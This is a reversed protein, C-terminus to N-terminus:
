LQEVIEKQKLDIVYKINNINSVMKCLENNIKELNKITNVLENNLTIILQVNREIVEDESYEDIDSM